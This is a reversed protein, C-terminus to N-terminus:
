AYHGNANKFIHYLYSDKGDKDFPRIGYGKYTKSGLSGRIIHHFAKRATEAKEFTAKCFESLYHIEEHGNPFVMCAIFKHGANGNYGNSNAGAQINWGMFPEPRLRIEIEDAIAPSLNDFLVKKTLADWDFSRITENTSYYQHQRLRRKYNTANGVYGYKLPSYGARIHSTLGPQDYIWYVTNTYTNM